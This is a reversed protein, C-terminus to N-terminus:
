RVERKDGKTCTEKIKLPQAMTLGEPWRRDRRRDRVRIVKGVMGYPLSRDSLDYPAIEM